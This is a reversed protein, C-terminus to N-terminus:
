FGLSVIVAKISYILSDFLEIFFWLYIPLLCILVTFGIIMKLPLGIVFVNMQPVTRAVFGMAIDSILLAMVVPASIKVAVIFLASSINLLIGMFDGDLHTGLVPITEYSMALASLLYHHGNVSLYIFLALLYIYNGMLPVQMGSQPDLVNVMGFGIQMDILQGALQIAAFLIYAIFGITIGIFIELTLAIIMLHPSVIEQEFRVPIFYSMLASLGIIIIIKIKIPIQRSAFIPASLFLGSIRGAIILFNLWSFSDIM